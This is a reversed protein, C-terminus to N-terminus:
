VVESIQADVRLRVPSMPRLTIVPNIDQKQADDALRVAYRQGVISLILESEMWAFFQGTCVHPGGGFPVYAYRPISHEDLWREPKFAEADPFFRPDRGLTYASILLYSGPPATYKGVQVDRIARRGFVWIPPYLRMAERMIWPAYVAPEARLQEAQEPHTALVHWAWTLATATTEHGAIFLSLVLDKAQKDDLRFGDEADVADLITTLLDRPKDNRMRRQAIVRTITKDMEAWARLLKLNRPTPLPLRVPQALFASGLTIAQGFADAADTVDANFLAQGVIRLTLATMDAGIDRIQGPQWTALMERTFDEILAKYATLNQPQFAPQILRRMRGHFAKDNLSKELDIQERRQGVRLPTVDAAAEVLVQRVVDPHNILYFHQGGVRGYVLDGYERSLVRWEELRRRNDGLL